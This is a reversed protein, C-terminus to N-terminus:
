INDVTDINVSDVTDVPHMLVQNCNAQLRGSFFFKEKTPQM